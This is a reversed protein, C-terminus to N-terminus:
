KPAPDVRSKQYEVYNRTAQFVDNGNLKFYKDGSTDRPFSAACAIKLFAEGTSDPIVAEEAGVNSNSNLFKGDQDYTSWALTQITRKSCSIRWRLATSWSGDTDAAKTKVTKVWVTAVEKTKEFSEADFFYRIEDNGVWVFHWASAAAPLAALLLAGSAIRVIHSKM